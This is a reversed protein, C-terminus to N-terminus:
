IRVNQGSYAVLMCSDPALQIGVDADSMWVTGACCEVQDLTCGSTIPLLWVPSDVSATIRTTSLGCLQEIVFKPGEALVARTNDIARAVPRALAAPRAAAIAEDLQLERPRGYDFLRYTLDVNQQIELLSLGAGIAHVTGAPVYFFDGPEVPHWTLLSEIRGDVAAARLQSATLDAEFGAGIVAGPEASLIYWAEDKGRPHGSSRALDDSPHVQISLRESTFLYKVLLDTADAGEFWIEGIADGPHTQGGFMAPIDQRGWVKALARAELQRTAM